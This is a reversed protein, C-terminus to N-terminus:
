VVGLASILGQLIEKQSITPENDTKMNNDDEDVHEYYLQLTQLIDKLGQNRRDLMRLAHQRIQTILILMRQWIGRCNMDRVGDDEMMLWALIYDATQLIFLGGDLRRLYFSDEVDPTLGEEGEGQL